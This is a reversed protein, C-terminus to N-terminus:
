RLGGLMLGIVPSTLMFIPLKYDREILAVQDLEGARKPRPSAPERNSHSARASRCRRQV